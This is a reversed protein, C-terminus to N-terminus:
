LSIKRVPIKKLTSKPVYINMQKPFIELKELPVSINM